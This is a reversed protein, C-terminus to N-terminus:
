RSRQEAPVFRLPTVTLVLAHNLSFSYVSAGHMESVSSALVASNGSGPAVVQAKTRVSNTKPRHRLIRSLADRKGAVAGGHLTAQRKTQSRDRGFSTVKGSAGKM